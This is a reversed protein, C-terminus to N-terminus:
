VTYEHTVQIGRNYDAGDDSGHDDAFAATQSRAGKPNVIHERSGVSTDNLKQHGGKICLM